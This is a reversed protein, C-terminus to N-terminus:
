EFYSTQKTSFYNLMYVLILTSTKNAQYFTEKTITTTIIIIIIIIIIKYNLKVYMGKHTVQLVLMKGSCMWQIALSQM